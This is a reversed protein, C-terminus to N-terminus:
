EIFTLLGMVAIGLTILVTQVVLAHLGREHQLEPILDAAALYVFGGATLPVLLTAVTEQAVSGAVLSLTTGLIAVSASALNLLVARRVSLGSHILIGFDALEQPIEHFLVAITTSLGLTPSVLYSAGIVMGDIFNHIADGLINIAALEPRRLEPQGHYHEHLVGHQHRLLKEVVFFVMMGGLILLSPGLAARSPVPAAFTEPILHIFADGLLAGVAFSVFFTALKRVRAEDMSLTVLGVLSVLSVAIVSVLALIVTTM